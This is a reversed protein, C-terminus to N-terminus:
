FDRINDFIKLGQAKARRETSEFQQVPIVEFQFNGKTTPPTGAFM